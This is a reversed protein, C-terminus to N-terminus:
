IFRSATWSGRGNEQGPERRLCGLDNM